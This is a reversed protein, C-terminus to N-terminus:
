SVTIGAIPFLSLRLSEIPSNVGDILALSLGTDMRYLDYIVGTCCDQSESIATKYGVVAIIVASFFRPPPPAEQGSAAVLAAFRSCEEDIDSQPGTIILIQEFTEGPLLVSGIQAGSKAVQECLRKREDAAEQGSQKSIHMIPSVWVGFAPMHGVNRVRVALTIQAGNVTYTLGSALNVDLALWPRESHIFARTNDRMTETARRMEYAQYGIVLLAALAIWVTLWEPRKLAAYWDPPGDNAAGTHDSGQNPKENAHSARPNEAQAAKPPQQKDSNSYPASTMIAAIVCLAFIALFVRM